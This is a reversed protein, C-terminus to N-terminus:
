EPQSILWNWHRRIWFPAKIKGDTSLWFGSSCRQARRSRGSPQEGDSPVRTSGLLSPPPSSVQQPKLLNKGKLNPHKPFMQIGNQANTNQWIKYTLSEGALLLCRQVINNFSKIHYYKKKNQMLKSCMLTVLEFQETNCSFGEHMLANVLIKLTDSRSLSPMRLSLSSFKKWTLIRNVGLQNWWIKEATNSKFIQSLFSEVNNHMDVSSTSWCAVPGELRPPRSSRPSSSCSPHLSSCRVSVWLDTVDKEFDGLGRITKSPM